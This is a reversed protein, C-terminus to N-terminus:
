PRILPFHSRPNRISATVLLCGTDCSASFYLFHTQLLGLLPIGTLPQSEQNALLRWRSLSPTLQEGM